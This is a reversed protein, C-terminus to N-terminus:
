IMQSVIVTKNRINYFSKESKSVCIQINQESNQWIAAFTKFKTLHPCTGSFNDFHCLKWCFLLSEFCNNDFYSWSRSNPFSTLKAFVRVSIFLVSNQEPTRWASAGTRFFPIEFSHQTFNLRSIHNGYIGSTWNSFAELALQRM